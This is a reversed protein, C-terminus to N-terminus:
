ALLQNLAFRVSGRERGASQAGGKLRSAVGSPIRGRIRKYLVAHETDRGREARVASLREVFFRRQETRHLGDVTLRKTYQLQEAILVNGRDLRRDTGLLFIEKHIFVAEVLTGVQNVRAPRQEAGTGRLPLLEVVMVEARDLWADRSEHLLEVLLKPLEAYVGFGLVVFHRGRLMLKSRDKRRGIDGGVVVLKGHLQHLLDRLLVAHDTQKVLLREGAHVPAALVVVPRNRRIGAHVQEIGSLRGILICLEQKEQAGDDLRDVFILIQEAHGHGGGAVIVTEAGVFRRGGHDGHEEAVLQGGNKFRDFLFGCVTRLFLREHADANVNKGLERLIRRIPVSGGRESEGAIFKFKAHEARGRGNRVAVGYEIRRDGLLKAFKRIRQFSGVIKLRLQVVQDHFRDALVLPDDEVAVAIVLCPDFLRFAATQEVQFRGGVRDRIQERFLVYREEALVLHEALPLKM